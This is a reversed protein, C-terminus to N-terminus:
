KAPAAAAEFTSCPLAASNVLNARTFPQWGYRVSVPNKVANSKVVVTTGEIQAMAAHYVGDEGAVEFGILKPGNAALGAAHSFRLRLADAQVSVGICVPGEAELAHGYTHSLALRALREGVPQKLTYHVDLSDGLDTTVAMWTQPLEAALRRQSDRFHPWSPRNLSSLQVVYFPLQPRGFFNRWSKELLPFLREHLEANHANSEGQYWAVGRLAYNALPRMGAEFMYAPEYPHRQLPNKSEGINQLARQRAWPMGFDGRYWDRLILPFDWELTHRDIWSETTTGGVANCIIGVPVKLSDALAEGFHYAVASFGKLSERSCRQWPGFRLYQHRNVSDCAAASWKVANTAYIAPMNFFHLLTRSDAQALDADRSSASSVPLEMNSQGSCLWVEGIYIHDIVIRRSPASLTAKYPGGATQAPFTLAWQGAADARCSLTRGCFSVKVQEGANAMGRFVIPEHRQMVMGDTYLPPLQLGGYNGTLGSYVTQAIIAAGEASPHIADAFLDPRSYLPAHLDILGVNAAKAVQRIHQQIAAHWDRTGSCFRAHRDFIPSMLCVWIRAKPNVARFQSILRLYDANFDESYNPWNRPDTDNLGLHIVVMDAKFALAEEYEKQKVYPRHGKELLTTGSHGFNRVEYGDGLLRQLQAPYCQTEREPLGYGWTVSNGVCAVKIKSAAFSTLTSLLLSCLLIIKRTM